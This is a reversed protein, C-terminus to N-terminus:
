QNRKKNFLESWRERTRALERTTNLMSNLMSIGTAYVSYLSFVIAIMGLVVTTWEFPSTAKAETGTEKYPITKVGVIRGSVSVTPTTDPKPVVGVSVTFADTPNLLIPAIEVSNGNVKPNAPLNPPDSSSEDASLVEGVNEIHITIPAEYDASRIPQGGVNTVRLQLLDYNAIQRGKYQLEIDKVSGSLSSDVLRSRAVMQVEVRKSQDSQQRYFVYGTLLIA